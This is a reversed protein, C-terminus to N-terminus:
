EVFPGEHGNEDGTGGSLEAAEDDVAEELAAGFRRRDDFADSM